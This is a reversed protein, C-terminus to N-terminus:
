NENMKLSTLKKKISLAPTFKIKEKGEVKYRINKKFDMVERDKNKIKVFTGLGRIQITKGSLLFEKFINKFKECFKECFKKEINLKSLYVNNKVKLYFDSVIDENKIIM